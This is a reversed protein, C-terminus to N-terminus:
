APHPGVPLLARVLYGDPEVRHEFEVSCQRMLETGLGTASGVGLGNVNATEHPSRGNDQIVMEALDPGASRVGILVRTAGGHRVANSVAEGVVDVFVGASIPDAKFADLARPAIDIDIAAVGAWTEVSTALTHDIDASSPNPLALRMIATSLAERQQAIVLGLDDGEASARKIQSVAGHIATQVPGHLARSLDGQQQWRVAALRASVWRLQAADQMIQEDANVVARRTSAAVALSWGILPLYIFGAFVISTHGDEVLATTASGVGNILLLSATLVVAHVWPPRGDTVARATVRLVSTGVLLTATLVGMFPVVAPASIFTVAAPIMTVAPILTLWLPNLGDVARLGYWADSPRVRAILGTSVFASPMPVTRALAHSLPRVVDDALDRLREDVNASDGFAVDLQRQLDAVIREAAQEQRQEIGEDLTRIAAVLGDRVQQAAAIRGARERMAGIIASFLAVALSSTAIGAPLRYAMSLSAAAGFVYLLLQLTIGRAAGALLLSVVLWARGTAGHSRRLPAFAALVVFLVLTSILVSLLRVGVHGSDLDPSGLLHVVAGVILTLGFVPWSVLQEGNVRDLARAVAGRVTVNVDTM